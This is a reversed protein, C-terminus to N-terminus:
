KKNKLFLNYNNDILTFVFNWNYELIEYFKDDHKITNSQNILYFNIYIYNEIDNYIINDKFKTDYDVNIFYIIINPNIIKINLIFQKIEDLPTKGYRIFFIIDEEYVSNILRFYRRLYKNEFLILDNHNPKKKLDHYSILKHFNKWQVITTDIHSLSFHFNNKLFNLNKLTFIENITTMSVVLYDFFNTKYIQDYYYNNKITSAIACAYGAEDYSLSIIKM